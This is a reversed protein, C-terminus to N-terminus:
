VLFIGNTLLVDSEALYKLISHVVGESAEMTLIVM